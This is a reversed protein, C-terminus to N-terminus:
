QHKRYSWLEPFAECGSRLESDPKLM